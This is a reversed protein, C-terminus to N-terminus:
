KGKEERDTGMLVTVPGTDTPGPAIEKGNIVYTGSFRDHLGQRTRSFHLMFFGIFLILGSFIKAIFRVTAHCFSLPNGLVDVVKLGMIRKGFTGAYRSSTMGASLLWCLVFLVLCGAAFSGLTEPMGPDGFAATAGSFFLPGTIKGLQVVVGLLGYTIAGALIMDIIFAVMRDTFGAYQMGEHCGADM